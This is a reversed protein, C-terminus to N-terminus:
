KRSFHVNTVNVGPLERVLFTMFGNCQGRARSRPATVYSNRVMSYFIMKITSSNRLRSFSLFIELELTVRLELGVFSACGREWSQKAGDISIHIGLQGCYKSNLLTEFIIKSQL